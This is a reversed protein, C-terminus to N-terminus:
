IIQSIWSDRHFPTIKLESQFNKVSKILADDTSVLICPAAIIANKILYVDEQPIQRFINNPIKTLNWDHVIQCRYSDRLVLAFFLHMFKHTPERQNAAIRRAKDIWPSNSPIFLKFQSQQIIRELLRSTEELKKEGNDNNIDHLFWENLVLNIM